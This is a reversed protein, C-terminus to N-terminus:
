RTLLGQDPHGVLRLHLHLGPERILPAHGHFANPLEGGVVDRQSLVHEVVLCLVNAFVARTLSLPNVRALSLELVQNIGEISM